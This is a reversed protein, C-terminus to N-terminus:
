AGRGMASSSAGGMKGAGGTLVHYVVFLVLVIVITALFTSGHIKPYNM